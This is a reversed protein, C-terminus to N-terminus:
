EPEFSVDRRAPVLVPQQNQPHRLITAPHRERRFTGLGPVHAAGCGRTLAHVAAILVARIEDPEAGPIRTSMSPHPESLPSGVAQRLDGAAKFSPKGSDHAPVQRPRRLQGFGSILLVGQQHLRQSLARGVRQVVQQVAVSTGLRRAVERQLAVPDPQPTISLIIENGFRQLYLPPTPTLFWLGQERLQRLEAVSSVVLPFRWTALRPTALRVTSERADLVRNLFGWFADDIWSDHFSPQFIWRQEGAVLVLGPQLDDGTKLRDEGFDDPLLTRLVGFLRQYDAASSWGQADLWRAQGRAEKEDAWQVAQAVAASLNFRGGVAPPEAPPLEPQGDESADVAEWRRRRRVDQLARAALALGLVALLIWPWVPM